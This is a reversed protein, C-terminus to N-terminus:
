RINYYYNSNFSKGGMLESDMNLLSDNFQQMLKKGRDSDAYFVLQTKSKGVKELAAKYDELIIKIDADRNEVMDRTTVMVESVIDISEEDYYYENLDLLQNVGDIKAIRAAYPMRAAVITGYDKAVTILDQQNDVYDFKVTAYAAGKDLMAKKILAKEESDRGLCIVTKKALTKPTFGWGSVGNGYVYVGGLQTPSILTIKKGGEGWAQAAMVTSSIAIDFSGSKLKSKFNAPDGVKEVEYGEPLEDAVVSGASKNMVLVKVPASLGQPAAAQEEEEEEGCGTLLMAGSMVLALVIALFIVPIRRKEMLKCAEGAAPHSM